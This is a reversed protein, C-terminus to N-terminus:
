EEMENLTERMDANSDNENSKIVELAKDILENIKKRQKLKQFM